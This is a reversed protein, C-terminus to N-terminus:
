YGVSRGQSKECSTRRPSIAAIDDRVHDQLALSPNEGSLDLVDKLSTGLHIGAEALWVAHVHAKILDENALDLRPPTVSGAVMLHPRKFFYQDHPRFTSCYSFVLAPQGSRGARGSRQAYNAPTPPVNRMNVCNLEAIDVGLEMTPSCYLIPLHGERFREERDIRDEYRVQATHERAEMGKGDDAIQEYYRIFFPNTRGGTESVRPVRIPDHFPTSADGPLWVLGAALLQYGCVDDAGSPESVVEVLGAARLAELLDQCIEQKDDLSLSQGQGFTNPRGLYQGFGGRPSLFVNGSYDQGQRKPRPYLISSTEMKETDDIAWPARLRQSSQLKMREHTEPELYTVKIALERRMFDLLTKAVKKRVEPEANQLVPHCNEWVDEARCVDDLSLYDIVLLGCQELNPATIRWGRKLDRYLRYGIVQRLAKETDELARFRVDPDSAYLTKPLDLANFVMQVLTDHNLGSAGAGKVAKHLASRLLGVEVFDNFHGAQLSADQRNDTFSLLKRARPDLSEDKQLYRTSALSLITTATSRGETGLSALKGFDSTQRFNYAVGCKLCFRFPAPLYQMDIGKESEEGKTSVRISDPLNKRRSPKVRRIGKHDEIWDDPLRELLQEGGVPWPDTSSTFLFGPETNEDNLRDSLERSTYISVHTEQDREKRVCYYEQGCERCFVLPLLIKGRDGPVFQQAQFTLHREAESELSAYITDGRSIFQHLRFAFVPFGTDPNPECHYSSLLQKQIAQICSGEPVGTLESLTRAAGKEGSISLPKARVLRGSEPEHAIGFVTEIWSSLADVVYGNYDCPPEIENDELRQRLRNLFEADSDSEEKTARRLTEGIVHESQVEDGFITSAVKAVEKMQQAYTGSTSLTASTGVCQIKNSAFADKSRRILMSVDAGQRGRYTHLEDFVLFRLHKGGEILPKEQNRTLLLELMVYNTLLIDPPRSIIEQKREDSEQGTYRAFSVPGKGDLFGHCLFKSLEGEQSNALANMPYVVIAQIGRGPGNKLIYNVIPIIYALSKGSGTGTTLVYNHGKSAVKIADAQHKHLRLPAGSQDTGEESKGKRFVKSCMEHLIGDKVLEDVTEGPEFSPNLQILPDPWLLGTNLEEEVQQSIRKDLIHIFGKVFDSYDEILCDRLGFVDM